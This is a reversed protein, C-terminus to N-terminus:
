PPDQLILSLKAPLLAPLHYEVPGLPSFVHLPRSTLSVDLPAPISTHSSSHCSIFVAWTKIRHFYWWNKWMIFNIQLWRSSPWLHYPLWHMSPYDTPKKINLRFNDQCEEGWFTLTGIAFEPIWSWRHPDWIGTVAVVAGPAASM